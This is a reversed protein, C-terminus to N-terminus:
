LSQGSTPRNTESRECVLEVLRAFHCQTVKERRRAREECLRRVNEGDDEHGDKRTVVFCDVDGVTM